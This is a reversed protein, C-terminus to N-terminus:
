RDGLGTSVNLLLEQPEFPRPGISDSVAVAARDVADEGLVDDDGIGDSACPVLRLIKGLQRGISPADVRVLQPIDRDAHVGSRGDHGPPGHHLRIRAVRASGSGVAHGVGVDQVVSSPAHTAECLELRKSWGALSGTKGSKGIM